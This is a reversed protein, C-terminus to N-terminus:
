DTERVAVPGNVTSVHIVAPGSGLQIKRPTPEGGVVDAQAAPCRESRCSVPGHGQSEAVVGSRFGHPVHLTLPGNTTHAEVEGGSWDASTLTVSVPGNTSTLKVAGSAGSFAIPGNIVTGDITGSVDHLAIPGNETRAAVTGSVGRVSLEGNHAQLDLSATRPARVIYYVVWQGDDPGTATVESGNLLVHVDSGNGLASAKCAKVEYGGDWGTVRIGGNPGSVLRLSRLSQTPVSEEVVPVSRGAVSVEIQACRTLEEDRNIHINFDGSERHSGAWASIAMSLCGLAISVRRM